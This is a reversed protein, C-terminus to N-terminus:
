SRRLLDHVDRRPTPSNSQAYGLRFLMQVTHEKAIGLEAKFQQKLVQMEAYEELVQSMPQMQLGMSTAALHTRLYAQGALVQDSRGNNPTSIGGFAAATSAQEHAGDVAGTAFAGRPDVARARSLLFTEAIWKKLGITGNSRLGFGDRKRDLEADSFRFWEATEANRLRSAVEIRMAETCIEALRRRQSTETFVAATTATSTGAKVITRLQEGSCIRAVEFPQKSTHRAPSFRFLPDHVARSDAKLVVRAVPVDAVTENGYQGLPFYTINAAYGLEGATMALLELFAGHSIHIQRAPPDSMPLLRQRDVYLDISGDPALAVLWPQSNHSSPAHIASEMMRLRIDQSASLPRNQKKPEAGALFCGASVMAAAAPISKLFNRRDM